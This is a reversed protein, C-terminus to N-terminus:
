FAGNTFLRTIPFPQTSVEEFNNRIFEEFFEAAKQNAYTADLALKYAQVANTLSCHDQLFAFCHEVLCAIRYKAGISAMLMANEESISCQRHYAFYVLEKLIPSSISPDVLYGKLDMTIDVPVAEYFPLM